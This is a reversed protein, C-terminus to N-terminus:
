PGGAIGVTGLEKKNGQGDIQYIIWISAWPAGHSGKNVLVEVVGDNNFDGKYVKCFSRETQRKECFSIANPVSTMLGKGGEDELIGNVFICPSKPLRHKTKIKVSRVGSDGGMDYETSLIENEYKGGDLCYINVMLPHAPVAKGFMQDREEPDGVFRLKEGLLEGREDGFFDLDKEATILVKKSKVLTELSQTYPRLNREHTWGTISNADSSCSFKKEKSYEILAWADRIEKVRVGQGYPLSDIIKGNPAERINALGDISYCKDIDIGMALKNNGLLLFLLSLIVTFYKM